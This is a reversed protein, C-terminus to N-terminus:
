QYRLAEIPDLRTAKMAPVIGAAVGVVIAVAVALLVTMYSIPVAYGMVAGAIQGLGIGLVMGVMSGIFSILISELLFQMLISSNKAGIAKRIGIERTRESVSVLMMNMIGISGVVLSIGAISALLVSLYLGVSRITNLMETMNDIIFDNEADPKLRRTERLVVEIQLKAEEIFREDSVQAMIMQVRNPIRTGFIRRRFTTIPMLVVADQDQGGIGQGKTKLLGKVTFPVNGIRIVEGVPDAGHFLEQQITSGIVVVPVAGRMDREDFFRGSEIEYNGTKAVDTTSAILQTAFNQSKYAIQRTTMVMPSVAIINRVNRIADADNTRIISQTGGRLGGQTTFEPRIILLNAGIGSLQQNIMNQVTQGAAVMIVVACVGIIIGLTTLFSRLKNAKISIWAESAVARAIVIRRDM